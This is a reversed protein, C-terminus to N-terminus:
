ESKNARRRTTKKAKEESKPNDKKGNHIISRMDNGSITEKDLLEAAIDDLQHKFESLINDAELEANKVLTSIESDILISKEESYNKQQSLEKGLFVEEDKKGFKLPGIKKSMGWDCVMKRAINTAVEIDNGAGTSTDNFILKEACRGGMLINLRGLMYTRSYNFREVEPIQATIGLAQGRPIITIKHVPDAGKTHHAVLAHGAEHYAIIKKDSPTLIMSKREIGMMVKDKANEFDTMSITKKNNRAALLASENVLNELDAGALGPTGKAITKLDVNKSLPVKRTHIKLIAERGALDPTDVVIQRDFRGPRLLAKDLVDPRNTAALLIVNSKTDFGDMEVLIQNLTQEREDHGGGLGAGRHRGVADIEDIFIISPSNKKAQEFLDRVRSAGVGVFMEVFEAGSITFFPVKAEGSVAKALLTKGTGPPGLLLAGRPIKAGINAYKKPSKLFGVIEQLETKAEECGAVDTFMVKPKDPSIVRAKSKAFSFIGGQGGGSQMRRVIFFWFAIILLWPSFQFLYDMASPTNKKIEIHVTNGLMNNWEDVKDITINPLIVNFTEIPEDYDSLICGPNCEAILDNGTITAKSISQNLKNDNLLSIFSSYPINRSKKSLDFYNLMTISIVIILTWLIFNSILNKTIKNKNKKGM